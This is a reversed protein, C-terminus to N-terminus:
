NIYYVTITVAIAFVLLVSSIIILTLLAKRQKSISNKLFILCLILSVFSLIIAPFCFYILVVIKAFAKGIQAFGETNNLAILIINYIDYGIAFLSLALLIISIIIIIVTRTKRYKVNPSNKLTEIECENNNLKETM